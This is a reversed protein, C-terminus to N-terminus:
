IATFLNIPKIMADELIIKQVNEYINYRETRDGTIIGKMLLDDLKVNSHWNWAFATTNLSHFM